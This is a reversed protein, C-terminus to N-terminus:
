WFGHPIIRVYAVSYSNGQGFFFFNGHNSSASGVVKVYFPQGPGYGWLGFGNRVTFHVTLSKTQGPYLNGLNETVTNGYSQCGYWFYGCYSAKLQDPLSIRATVDSAFNQGFNNYQGYQGWAWPYNFDSNTVQLTCTGRQGNYVPSTCYLSTHLNVFADNHYNHYNHYGYRNFNVTFPGAWITGYNNWAKVSYSFSTIGAPINGSVMGTAPDINLWGPNGSLAYTPSNTAQFQYSYSQSNASTSPSDASWVPGNGAPPPSPNGVTVSTASSSAGDYSAVLSYTGPGVSPITCRGNGAGSGPMGFLNGTCGAGAGGVSFTGLPDTGNTVSVSVNIGGFGPTASNIAITATAAYAAAPAMLVGGVLGGTLIVGAALGASRRGAAEILKHM